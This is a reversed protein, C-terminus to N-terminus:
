TEYTFTTPVIFHLVSRGGEDSLICWGRQYISRVKVFTSMAFRVGSKNDKVQRKYVALHTYSVSGSGVLLLALVGVKIM